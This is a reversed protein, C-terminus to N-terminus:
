EQKSLHSSASSVHLLYLELSIHYLLDVWENPDSFALKLIGQPRGAHSLICFGGCIILMAEASSQFIFKDSM